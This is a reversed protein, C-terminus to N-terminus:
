SVPSVGFLRTSPMVSPVTVTFTVYSGIISL